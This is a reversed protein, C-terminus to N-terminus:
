ISHKEAFVLNLQNILTEHTTEELDFREDYIAVNM